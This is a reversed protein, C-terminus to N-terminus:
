AGLELLPEGAGLEPDGGVGVVNVRDARGGAGDVHPLQQAAPDLVDQSADVRGPQVQLPGVLPGLPPQEGGLRQTRQADQAGALRERGRVEAEGPALQEPAVRVVRDAAARTVLNVAVHEDAVLLEFPHQGHELASGDAPCGAGAGTVPDRHRVREGVAAAPQDFYCPCSGTTTSSSPKAVRM